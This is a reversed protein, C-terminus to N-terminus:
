RSVAFTRATVLLPERCLRNLLQRRARARLRRSRIRTLRALARRRADHDSLWWNVLATPSDHLVALLSVHADHLVADNM